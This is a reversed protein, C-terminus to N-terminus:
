DGKKKLNKLESVYVDKDAAKKVEDIVMKEFQNIRRDELAMDFVHLINQNYENSYHKGEVAVKKFNLVEQYESENIEWAFKAYFMTGFFFVAVFFLTVSTGLWVEDMMSLVVFMCLFIAGLIVWNVAGVNSWYFFLMDM